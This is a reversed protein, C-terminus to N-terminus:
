KCALNLLTSSFLLLSVPAFIVIVLTFSIFMNRSQTMIILVAALILLFSYLLKLRFYLQHFFYIAFFIMVFGFDYPNPFPATVRRSIFNSEKIYFLYPAEVLKLFQVIGIIITITFFTLIFKKVYDIEYKTSFYIYGTTFVIASYIPRHLEFFDRINLINGSLAIGITMGFPIAFLLYIFTM